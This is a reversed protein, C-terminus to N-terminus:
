FLLRLNQSRAYRGPQELYWSKKVAKIEDERTADKVVSVSDGRNYVTQLCWFPKDFNAEVTLRSSSRERTVILFTLQLLKKPAFSDKVKVFNSSKICHCRSQHDM